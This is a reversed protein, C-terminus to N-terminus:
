RAADTRDLPEVRPSLVLLVAVDDEYAVEWHSTRRLEEVVPASPPLLVISFERFALRDRWGRHAHYIQVYELVLEEGFHDAMSDVYLLQGPWTALVFGGWTWHTLLRGELGVERAHSVAAAPFVEPSFETPVIAVQDMRSDLALVVALAVAALAGAHWGRRDSRAFEERMRGLWGVPLGRVVPALGATVLPLALFAFLAANRRVAIAGVVAAGFVLLVHWGVWQRAAALGAVLIGVVALFLLGQPATPDLPMFEVVLRAADTRAWAVAHAHLSPGFPNVLSAGFALLFPTSGEVIITRPRTGARVQELARGVSWTALMILGYLFGPHLNAWLAFLPILWLVRHRSELLHLLVATGVFTFLHPRALLHAYVMVGAVAGTIFALAPDGTRRRVYAVVLALSAATLIAALFALGPLGVADHVLALIVQSLWEYALFPEGARTFSFPDAFRPGAALIHRGIVIHRILDGDGNLLRHHFMLPILVVWAAFTLDVVSAKTRSDGRGFRRSVSDTM